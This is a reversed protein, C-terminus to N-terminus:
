RSFVIREHQLLRAQAGLALATIALAIVGPLLIDVAGIAEGRLARMMVGQQAMAPVFLQWTADRVSLFLPIVPAFNVLMTLYSAYTQAEKHSRGYTAAFMNVAAVMAAFPLLMALFLGSEAAGFQMLASLSENRIFMMATRFGLLTLVVVAASCSAVVAWKGLVIAPTSVPNMLLPELSGREREGATVDIAVSIAGVVAGLLALWPVLFLLQAGRSKSAALNIEEVEVPALVQLSVGRAMLRQSGLERSFARLLTLTARSPGQSRTSTDDFVVDLRISEGRALRAEFDAPVIVVANQLEGSAVQERFGAPAEKVTGGARQIFNVLTPAAGAGVMYVERRAVNEEVSAIFTSLLLLAIPGALISSVLVIMWTRRDRLADKLEKRFVVWATTM